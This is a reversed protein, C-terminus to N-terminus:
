IPRSTSSQSGEKSASATSTWIALQSKRKNIFAPSSPYATAGPGYASVPASHTTDLARLLSPRSGSSGFDNGDERVRSESIV